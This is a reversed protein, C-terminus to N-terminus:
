AVAGHMPERRRSPRSRRGPRRAVPHLLRAALYVGLALVTIFFSVPWGKGSTPWTWYYSDYALVIGVWTELVGLAAAVVIGLGPRAVLYAASAAPGILLATSLLVGVVQAAEAVGVAMTAIFLLGVLRVPVGRAAATEPSVTCFLLPRYLMALVVLCGAGIVALVPTMAPDAEFISGFLLIYPENVFRTGIYLFLAGLGLALSLIVGTAVDRERVREGLLDVGTAALVCFALLGWLANLGLLVSGAAGALGIDTVAHGAFSLGRLTVFYGLAASVIAAIAGFLLANVVQDNQLMGAPFVSQLWNM